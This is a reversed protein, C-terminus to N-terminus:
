QKWLPAHITIRVVRMITSTKGMPHCCCFIAAVNKNYSKNKDILYSFLLRLGTLFLEVFNFKLVANRFVGGGVILPADNGFIMHLNCYSTIVAEAAQFMKM